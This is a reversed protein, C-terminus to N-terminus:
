DEILVLDEEAIEFKVPDHNAKVKRVSVGSLQVEQVPAPQSAMADLKRKVNPLFALPRYVSARLAERTTRQKLERVFNERMEKMAESKDLEGEEKVISLWRLSVIALVAGIAFFFDWQQLEILHLISTIEPGKWEINWSLQHQAFFDALIGGIVPAVAAFLATIMSRASIYVIAEGRPALKLVINSMALNIGSTSIGNFIHILILLPITFLHISPMTTFTWAIIVAIYIPACIRIITKNSYKDSLRGWIRIFFISTFQSLMNLGIIYSLPMHLMKMLYVSFFPTALNLAFAWFSNFVLLNRFNKDGLPKKFLKFINEKSLEAKPEPTRSLLWVGLMGLCGGAIFMVSYAMIEHDPFRAKIFDLSLAVAISLTVNLIQILRSRHAFYTGLKQQPVLDRMWSNWSTGCISGFFYHVFLLVILAVISSGGSFMLPLLGIVLLPFRAFFSGIVSIARRNNYKQVLWIAVLQFINAITPLAALLGIQFNTAGMSLAMATLFAGGTLTAMAEAALGDKVVLKLGKEVQEETLQESPRFRM